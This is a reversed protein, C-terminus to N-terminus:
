WSSVPAKLISSDFFDKYKEVDKENAWTFYEAAGLRQPFLLSHNDLPVNLRVEQLELSILFCGTKLESNDSTDKITLDFIFDDKNCYYVSPVVGDTLDYFKKFKPNSVIKAIEQNKQEESLDSKLIKRFKSLDTIIREFTNRITFNPYIRIETLLYGIVLIFVLIIKLYQSTNNNM